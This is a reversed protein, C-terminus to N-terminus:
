KGDEHAREKWNLDWDEPLGYPLAGNERAEGYLRVSGTKCKARDPVYEAVVCNKKTDVWMVSFSDHMNGSGCEIRRALLGYTERNDAVLTVRCGHEAPHTTYMAYCIRALATDMDPWASPCLEFFWTHLKEDALANTKLVFDGKYVSSAWGALCTEPPLAAAKFGRSHLNDLIISKCRGSMDIRQLRSDLSIEDRAMQRVTEMWNYYYLIDKTEEDKALSDFVSKLSFGNANIWHRLGVGTGKTRNEFIRVTLDEDTLQRSSGNLIRTIASTSVKCLRAFEAVPRAGICRRTMEAVAEPSYPLDEEFLIM